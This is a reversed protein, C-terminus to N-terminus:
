FQVFHSSGIFLRHLGQKERDAPQLMRDEGVGRGM